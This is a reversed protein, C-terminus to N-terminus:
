AIRYLVWTAGGGGKVALFRGSSRARDTDNSEVTMEGVLTWGANTIITADEGAVTSINILSFEFADSVASNPLATDLASALPLTYSATGTAGQNATLLGGVIEAATLTTDTTKAAPASQKYMLTTRAVVNGTKGTGALAGGTLIVDGGNGDTSSAAAGNLALRGGDGTAGAGSTGAQVTLTGGAGTGFGDASLITLNAGATNATTSANVKATHNVEKEFLLSTGITVAKEVGIGGETIIAGTDKTTSDTTLTSTLAGSLTLTTTSISGDILNDVATIIADIIENQRKTGFAKVRAGLSTNLNTPTIAM